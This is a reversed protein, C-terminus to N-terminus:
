AVRSLSHRLAGRIAAGVQAVDDRTLVPASPLNLGYPSLEYAVKNRERAKRAETHRSFAPLSSLPFFFPRSDIGADALKQSLTEKDFGLRPDFLATVMWYSNDLGPVDPNLSVGALGELEERYWGFLRRRWGVLEELRELQALGLAAQLSSMRYKFGVEDNWFARGGPSRGHDRLKLVQRHLREDRLVLMGGEGTTVTKSGHFSFVSVDAAAGAKVGDRVSGIAEAADEILTLRYAQALGKLARYDPMAGYLDVAIIARTKRTICAEVSRASLCWTDREIDAFVPSAGVYSVPAATAIWTIDPVIVEDGPGIGLAALALHLGATCSPLAVAAPMELHAAFAQEFRAPWEQAREYWGNKVAELVYEVERETISPGSVPMRKM